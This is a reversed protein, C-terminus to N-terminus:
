DGQFKFFFIASAEGEVEKSFEFDTATPPVEGM